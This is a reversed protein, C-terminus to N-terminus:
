SVKLPSYANLNRKDTLLMSAIDERGSTSFFFHFLDNMRLEYGRLIM